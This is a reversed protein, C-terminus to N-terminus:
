SAVEIVIKGLHGAAELHAFAERAQPFPFVADVVPHIGHQDLFRALDQHDQRPGVFIGELRLRQMLVPIVDVESRTGSLVGIVAVTGGTRTARLSQGLTGAGGVEVVLDVGRGGTLKRVQKAWEPHERYNVTEWAGLERARALKEESSSTVIVRCGAAHALQLAFISVGGTGLVLVTDGPRVRGQSFLAAWATVGACPLTAAEVESLGEPTRVLGHESVLMSEALTGDLPGGLTGAHVAEPIQGDSWGQHFCTMVRDGVQWTTVGEGVAEVVGAGDSCPVLPLPQRPNYLGKVMMLDRYNLSVARLGVRVQGPGPEPLAREVLQLNELGFSPIVFAKM